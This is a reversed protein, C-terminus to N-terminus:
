CPQVGFAAPAADCVAKAAWEQADFSEGIQELSLTSSEGIILVFLEDEANAHQKFVFGWKLTSGEGFIQKEYIM